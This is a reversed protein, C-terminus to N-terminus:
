YPWDRERASQEQELQKLAIEKIRAQRKARARAKKTRVISGLVIVAILIVGLVIMIILAVINPIGIRSFIWGEKVSEAAVIDVTTVPVDALYIVAEGIVDGKAVPATLDEFYEPEVLILSASAGELLNVYGDAGAKGSVKTVAGNKVKAKQEFMTDKELAKYPQVMNGAHKFLKGLDDFDYGDYDNLTVAIISIGNIRTAAFAVTRETTRKSQLGAYCDPDVDVNITKGEYNTYSGGKMLRNSTTLKKAENMNTADMQYSKEGLIGGVTENNLAAEVILCMDKASAKNAGTRHGTADYFEAKTCGIELARENMLKVFDEESEATLIALQRAAANNARMLALHMLADVTTEEGEKLWSSIDDSNIASPSVTVADDMNLQEAAILCTLLITLSDVDYQKEGNYDWVFSNSEDIYIATGSAWMDVGNRTDAFVYAMPGICYLLVIAVIVVVVFVTLISRKAKSDTKRM